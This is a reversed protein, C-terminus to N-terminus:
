PFEKSPFAFGNLPSRESEYPLDVRGYLDVIRVLDTKDSPKEIEMLWSDQLAHTRHEMGPEVIFYDGARLYVSVSQYDLQVHGTLVVLMVRKIRHYHRSTANEAKIHLYWVSAFGDDSVEYEYGWPKRVIESRPSM